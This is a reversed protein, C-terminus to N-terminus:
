EKIYPSEMIKKAEEKTNVQECKTMISEALEKTNYLRHLDFDFDQVEYITKCRDCRAGDCNGCSDYTEYPSMYHMHGTLVKSCIVIRRTELDEM